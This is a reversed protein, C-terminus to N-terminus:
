NAYQLQWSLAIVLDPSSLRVIGFITQWKTKINDVLKFKIRLMVLNSEQDLM